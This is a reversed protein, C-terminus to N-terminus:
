LTDFSKCFRNIMEMMREKKLEAPLNEIYFSIGEMYIRFEVETMPQNAVPVNGGSRQGTLLYDISIDMDQKLIILKDETIMNHGRLLKSYQVKSIGLTTAMRDDSYGAVEQAHKMRNAIVKLDARTIQHIM